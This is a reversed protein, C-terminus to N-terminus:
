EDAEGGDTAAPQPSSNTDEVTPTDNTMSDEDIAEGANPQYTGEYRTGAVADSLVGEMSDKGASVTDRLGEDIDRMASADATVRFASM